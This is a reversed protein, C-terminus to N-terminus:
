DDDSDDPKRCQSLLLRGGFKDVLEDAVQMFADEDTQDDQVHRTILMLVEM